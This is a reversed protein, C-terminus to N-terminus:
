HRMEVERSTGISRQKDEEAHMCMEAGNQREIQAHRNRDRERDSHAQKHRKEKHRHVGREEEADKRVCRERGTRMQMQAHVAKEEETHQDRKSERDTGTCREKASVTCASKNKKGVSQM